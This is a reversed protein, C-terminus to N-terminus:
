VLLAETGRPSEGKLKAFQDTVDIGHLDYIRLDIENRVGPGDYWNLWFFPAVKYQTAKKDVQILGTESYANVTGSYNQKRSAENGASIFVLAGKSFDYDVAQCKEDSGDNYTDRGGYSMTIIDADYIDVSAKLANIMAAHTASGEKNEIKLFILDAGYAMGKYKGNSQTGRGLVSGTVHTGHGSGYTADDENVNDDLNPYNSYDKSGVPTPIDPHTTDLGSDLVAIKVGAGNYKYSNWVDTVKISKAAEDNLREVKEEATDLRIVYPKRALSFLRDIPVSALIFGTPHNELPPIWSDEYVIAGIKKIAEIRSISLKRKVHIFILQKDIEEVRMGMSEMISLKDSSPQEKYSNKLQIQLKLLPSIKKELRGNRKMENEM